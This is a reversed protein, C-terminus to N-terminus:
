PQHHHSCRVQLVDKEKAQLTRYMELLKRSSPHAALPDVQKACLLLIYSM